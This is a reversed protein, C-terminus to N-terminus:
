KAAQVADAAFHGTNALIAILEAGAARAQRAATEMQARADDRRGETMAAVVGAFDLSVVVCRASHLGGLERQIHENLLRYYSLTSPWAVGGILGATKMM